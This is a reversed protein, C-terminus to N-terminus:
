ELRPLVTRQFSAFIELARSRVRDDVLPFTAAVYRFQDETLGYLRAAIANLRAYAEAAADVGDRALTQSLDVLAAFESSGAAPRPVPVRTMLSATVHTMVRLRVLYNAILSNMLGLLCWQSQEDLTTKSVLVTHTSVTGAPLLAAILTLKNTAGAVDRYALRPRRFPERELLRSAIRASIGATARDLHVQFPSLLKGEVIPLLPQDAKALPLFHPRDDTANLERGFRVNWGSASGLAPVRSSLGSL